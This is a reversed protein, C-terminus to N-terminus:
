MRNRGVRYVFCPLRYHWIKCGANSIYSIIQAYTVLVLCWIQSLLLAWYLQSQELLILHKHEIKNTISFLEARIFIIISLHNLAFNQIFISVDLNSMIVDMFIPELTQFIQKLSLASTETIWIIFKFQFTLIFQLRVLFLTSDVM